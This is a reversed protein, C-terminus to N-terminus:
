SGGVRRVRGAQLDIRGERGCRAQLGAGRTPDAGHQEPRAHGADAKRMIILQYETSRENRKVMWFDAVKRDFRFDYPRPGSRDTQVLAAAPQDARDVTM